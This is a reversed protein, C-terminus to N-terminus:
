RPWVNWIIAGASALLLLGAGAFVIRELMQVRVGLTAFNVKGDGLVRSISELYHKIECLDNALAQHQECVNPGSARDPPM